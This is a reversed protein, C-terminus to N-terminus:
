SNSAFIQSQLPVLLQQFKWCMLSAPTFFFLCKFPCYFKFPSEEEHSSHFSNVLHSQFPSLQLSSQTPSPPLSSLFCSLTPPPPPPPTRRQFIYQDLQFFLDLFFLLAPFNLPSPIRLQPRYIFGDPVKSSPTMGLEPRERASEALASSSDMASPAQEQRGGAGAPLGGPARYCLGMELLLETPTYTVPAHGPYVSTMRLIPPHPSGGEKIFIRRVTLHLNTKLAKLTKTFAQTVIRVPCLYLGAIHFVFHATV